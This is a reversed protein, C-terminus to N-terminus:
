SIFIKQEWTWLDINFSIDDTLHQMHIVTAGRESGTPISYCVFFRGFLKAGNEKRMNPRTNFKEFFILIQIHAQRTCRALYQEYPDM